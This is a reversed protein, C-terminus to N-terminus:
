NKRQLNLLSVYEM